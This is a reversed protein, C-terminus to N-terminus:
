KYGKRSLLAFNLFYDELLKTKIEYQGNELYLDCLAERLYLLEKKNKKQNKITLDLLELIRHFSKQADVKHNAKKLNLFRAFESGINEMQAELPMKQWKEVDLDKHIM